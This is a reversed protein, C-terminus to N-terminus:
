FRSAQSNQGLVLQKEFVDKDIRVYFNGDALRLVKDKAVEDLAEDALYVSFDYVQVPEIRKTIQGRKPTDQMQVTPAPLSRPQTRRTAVALRDLQSADM